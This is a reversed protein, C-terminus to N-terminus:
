PLSAPGSSPCATKLCEHRNVCDSAATPPETCHIWSVLLLVAITASSKANECFCRGLPGQLERSLTGPGGLMPTLIEVTPYSMKPQEEDWSSPRSTALLRALCPVCRGSVCAKTSYETFKAVDVTWCPTGAMIARKAKQNTLKRYFLRVPPLHHRHHLM